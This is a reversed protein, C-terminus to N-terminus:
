HSHAFLYARSTTRDFAAYIGRDEKSWHYYLGDTITIKDPGASHTILCYYRFLTYPETIPKLPINAARSEISGIGSEVWAIFGSEDITFEVAFMGRSRQSFSIDRAREPLAVPAEERSVNEAYQRPTSRIFATVLATTYALIAVAALLERSSFGKSGLTYPMPRAARRLQRSVRLNMWGFLCSVSGLIFMPLLSSVWTLPNGKLLFTGLTMTFVFLAFGGIFFLLAACHSAARSNRRFVARYQQIALATPLPLLIIGTSIFCPDWTVTLAAIAASIILICVALVVFVSILFAVSLQETNSTDL